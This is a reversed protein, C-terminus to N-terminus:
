ERIPLYLDFVYKEPDTESTNILHELWQHHAKKYSSDERWAVLDQWVRGINSIGQFRTVAYLGGPFDKISIEGEPQADPEVPVWIEYGYNPTGASPNPNNFGYSRFNGEPDLMGKSSIFALMKQHAILEPTEGFGYSSAVRMAKLRVIRVDITNM